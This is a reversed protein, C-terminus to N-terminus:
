TTRPEARGHQTGERRLEELASMRVFTAASVGRNEATEQIRELTGAPFSVTLREPNTTRKTM